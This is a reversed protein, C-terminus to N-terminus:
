SEKPSSIGTRQFEDTVLQCLVSPQQPREGNIFDSFHCFIAHTNYIKQALIDRTNLFNSHFFFFADRM